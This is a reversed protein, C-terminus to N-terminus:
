KIRSENKGIRVKKECTIIPYPVKLKLSTCDDKLGKKNKKNFVLKEVFSVLIDM